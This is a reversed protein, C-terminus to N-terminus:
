AFVDLSHNSVPKRSQTGELVSSNANEWQIIEKIWSGHILNTTDSSIQIIKQFPKKM